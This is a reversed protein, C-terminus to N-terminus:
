PRMCNKMIETDKQIHKEREKDTTEAKNIIQQLKEQAARALNFYNDLNENKNQRLEKKLLQRDEESSKLKRDM